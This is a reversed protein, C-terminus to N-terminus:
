STARNPSTRRTRTIIKQRENHLNELAQTVRGLLPVQPTGDDVLRAIVQGRKLHVVTDKHIHATDTSLTDELFRADHGSVRFVLLNGASFRPLTPM